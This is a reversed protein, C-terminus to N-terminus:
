KNGFRLLASFLFEATGHQNEALTDTNRSAATMLRGAFERSRAACVDSIARRFIPQEIDSEVNQSEARALRGQRQLLWNPVAEVSDDLSHDRMASEILGDCAQAGRPLIAVDRAAEDGAGGEAAGDAVPVARRAIEVFRLLDGLWPRHPKIKAIAREFARPERERPAFGERRECAEDLWVRRRGSGGVRGSRGRETLFRPLLEVHRALEDGFTAVVAAVLFEGLEVGDDGAAAAEGIQRRADSTNFWHM